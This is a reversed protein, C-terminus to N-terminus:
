TTQTLQYEKFEQVAKRLNIRATFTQERTRYRFDKSYVPDHFDDRVADIVYGALDTLERGMEDEWWTLFEVSDVIKNAGKCVVDDFNRMKEEWEFPRVQSVAGMIACVVVCTLHYEVSFEKSYM